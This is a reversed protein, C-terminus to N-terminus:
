GSYSPPYNYVLVARPFNQNYLTDWYNYASFIFLVVGVIIYVVSSINFGGFCVMALSSGILFSGLLVSLYSMGLATYLKERDTMPPGDGAKVEAVTRDNNPASMSVGSQEPDLLNEQESGVEDHSCM